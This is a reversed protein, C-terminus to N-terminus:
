PSLKGRRELKGEAKFYFSASERRDTKPELLHLADAYPFQFMALALFLFRHVFLVSLSGPKLSFGMLALALSSFLLNVPVLFLANGLREILWARWTGISLERAESFFLPRKRRV